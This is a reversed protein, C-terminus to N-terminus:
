FSLLKQCQIHNKVFYISIKELFFIWIKQTLDCSGSHYPLELRRFCALCIRIVTYDGRKFAGTLHKGTLFMFNNMNIFSLHFAASFMYINSHERQAM